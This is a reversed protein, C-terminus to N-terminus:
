EYRVNLWPNLPHTMSNLSGNTQSAATVAHFFFFGSNDNKNLALRFSCTFLPCIKNLSM